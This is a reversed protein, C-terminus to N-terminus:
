WWGNEIMHALFPFPETRTGSAISPTLTLRQLLHDVNTSDNVVGKAAITLSCLLIRVSLLIPSLIAIKLNARELDECAYTAQILVNLRKLLTTHSKDDTQLHQSRFWRERLHTLRSTCLLKSNTSGAKRFDEIDVEVQFFESIVGFFLWTQVLDLFRDDTSLIPRTNCLALTQLYRSPFEHFPGANLVYGAGSLLPIEFLPPSPRSPLPLHDM